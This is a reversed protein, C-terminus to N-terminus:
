KVYNRPLRLSHTVCVCSIFRVSLFKKLHNIYKLVQYPFWKLYNKMCNITIAKWQRDTSIPMCCLGSYILDFMGRGQAIQVQGHPPPDAVWALIILARSNNRFYM